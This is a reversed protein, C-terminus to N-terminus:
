YRIVSVTLSGSVAQGRAECPWRYRRAGLPGWLPGEWVRFRRAEHGTAGSIAGSVAGSAAGTLALKGLAGAGTRFAAFGAPQMGPIMMAAAGPIIGGVLETAGAVFPSDKHYQALENRIKKLSTEYDEDGLKSRLWAEGEDGWGMGMGQGVGTRLANVFQSDPM